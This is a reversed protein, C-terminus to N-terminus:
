GVPISLNRTSTTVWDAMKNGTRPPFYISLRPTTSLSAKIIGLLAACEWPRPSLSGELTRTLIQCDCFIRIVGPCSMALSVAERLEYAQEVLPSSCSIFGNSSGCIQGHVNNMVIDYATSQSDNLFSRDRHIEFDHTRPPPRIQPAPDQQILWTSNQGSGNLLDHWETADTLSSALTFCPI